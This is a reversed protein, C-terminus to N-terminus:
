PKGAARSPLRIVNPGPVKGGAADLTLRLTGAVPSVLVWSGSGLSDGEWKLATLHLTDLLLETKVVAVLRGGDIGTSDMTQRVVIDCVYVMKGRPPPDLVWRCNSQAHGSRFGLGLALAVLSLTKRTM